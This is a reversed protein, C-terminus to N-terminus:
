DAAPLAKAAALAAVVLDAVLAPEENPTFLSRGPITVIRIWPYAQV